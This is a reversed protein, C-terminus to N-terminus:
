MKWEIGAYVSRGVGPNFQASDVGGANAIVGTTAAYKKDFLNRADVFWGFGKATERGFKFGVIAYSDAFLTNAMDVPYRQSSWELNPGAFYGVGRWTLDTRLFHPPLGPLRNDGYVPNGVFRFDNWLYAARWFTNWPLAWTGGLEIGQHKTRPANVTGLPVGTPSNLSLLEDKVKAYYYAADWQLRPLQGRTGFEITSASQANVPTVNAGGALEGLSPPEFSQSWNAFAQVTPTFEYRAGLKPSVHDYRQDFSNNGNALFYDTYKRTARTAQVGLVAVAQQTVYFQNEAYATLNLAYQQSSATPNGPSGAINAFRNDSQSTRMPLFGATFINRHGALPTESIFRAWAGSDNSDVDLVQFIPHWLDKYSYYAGLELRQAGWAYTTKNAVRFLNFDRHYNGAVNIPNAMRPNNYLQVKTLNGPLESDSNVATFYFRTELNPNIRYGVNSFFRGNKQRSQEQYGDQYSGTATVYYDAAGVVGAVALQGRAYGYSGAEGRVLWAPANYGSPAVFNIAGGLTTAGYELANAGRFIEIYSAALPEIAQFDFAGDAQNIPVGDQLVMIGRGHFTRQIGSGRISLRSEEAGPIRSQVFVGTGFGLADAPTSARGGRFSEAEILGAGGPTREIRERAAEIGPQTISPDREASVRIEPLTPTVAGSQATHLTDQGTAEPAFSLLISLLSGAGAFCAPRFPKGPRFM